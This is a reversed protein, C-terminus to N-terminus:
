DGVAVGERRPDAGGILMGNKVEIGQLGSTLPRVRLKHGMDRLQDALDAVATGRELDLTDGRVAVNPLSIAQQINMKWDLVGILTKVVYAIIRSGGPTGLVLVLKGSGDFVLVPDQASRPRKGGAPSNVKLRGSATRPVPSFDTAHNNLMFGRVMLQSGFAGGISTTFSVANGDKDVVDLHSTSPSETDGSPAMRMTRRSASAIRGPSVKGLARDPQIMDSRSALYDFNLMGSVPVDVVDPDAIYRLRDANALRTAAAFLHVAEVSEPKMQSLDFRELMGLTMLTTVGGATPPGFGCILWARYPGCVQRRKKATYSSLDSATMRGPRLPDDTVAAAIDRAIPGTYFADAGHDAIQALTDALAPNKLWSGVALPQGDKDFFYARTAPYERLRRADDVISQHLGRSVMFGDRALKIAPQFLKRWPLRGHQAHALELMRLVGPVAASIGGVRYRSRPLAKGDPGMFEDPTTAEPATERGDYASIEGTKGDFDLLFGGGGIGSSQPEVLTLVAQVAIAADLANGGEHLIELGAKAALPNAAAVMEHRAVVAKRPATAFGSENATPSGRTPAPAAQPAPGPEPGACAVLALGAALMVAFVTTCTGSRWRRPSIRAPASRTEPAAPMLDM